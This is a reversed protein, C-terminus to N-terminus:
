WVSALVTFRTRYHLFPLHSPIAAQAQAAMVRSYTNMQKLHDLIGQIQRARKPVKLLLYRAM